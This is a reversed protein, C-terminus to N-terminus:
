SAIGGPLGLRQRTVDGQSDPAGSGLLVEIVVQSLRLAPATPQYPVEVATQTVRLQGVTPEQVAEVAVQTLRIGM